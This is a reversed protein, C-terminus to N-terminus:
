SVKAMERFGTNNELLEQYTGQDELEGDRIFYIQDCAQVTKLRHAILIITKQKGINHIAKMILKETIGDLASTAEDFILIDADNYLARAIGIRQRQGGSLQVGREGIKTDIGDELSAILDELNALEVAKNVQAFNIQEYPVGFAINEAVSSDTLVITQPVYGINQRWGLLNDKINVGDVLFQGKDAVVLGSLIDILTSKGSGSPGVFGISQNKHVAISLENIARKEKNPYTFNIGKLEIKDNFTVPEIKEKAEWNLKGSAIVDDALEEIISLNGKIASSYIYVQQLAPLLKFASIGYLTLVPIFDAIQQKQIVLFFLVLMAMSVYALWEMMYKPAIGLTINSAHAESKDSSATRFQRTFYRQKNLLLVDKIGEFGENLNRVREQNAKSILQSNRTLRSKSLFFVSVYGSVFLAAGGLTVLPNYTFLTIVILSVLILRAFMSLVPFLVSLSLRDTETLTRNIIWSSNVQTHYLWNQHQYYAFLQVAIQRGISFANRNIKRTTFISLVASSSLIVMMAVACTTVLREPNNELLAYVDSIVPYQSVEDINGVLHMFGAVSGITLIEFFSIAVVFIQLILIQRKQQSTFLTWLKKIVNFM